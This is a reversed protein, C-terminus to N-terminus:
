THCDISIYWTGDSQENLCFKTYIPRTFDSLQVVFAFMEQDFAEKHSCIPEEPKKYSTLPKELAAELCDIIVGWYDEEKIISDPCCSNLRTLDRALHWPENPRRFIHGYRGEELAKLARHLIDTLEESSYSSSM